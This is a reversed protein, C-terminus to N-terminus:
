NAYFVKGKYLKRREDTHYVKNFLTYIEPNIKDPDDVHTVVLFLGKPNRKRIVKALEIFTRGGAICDDSILLNKSEIEWGEMNCETATVKGNERVKTAYLIPYFEDNIQKVREIAGKDPCVLIDIQENECLRDVQDYLLQSILNKILKGAIPSHVDNTLVTEFGCSNILNAFVELSFPEDLSTVRDQRAYPLYPIILTKPQIGNRKMVDVMLLISMTDSDDFWHCVITDEGEKLKVHSEGSMFKM